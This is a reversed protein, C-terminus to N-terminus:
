SGFEPLVVHDAEFVAFGGRYPIGLVGATFCHGVVDHLFSTHTGDGVAGPAGVGGVRCSASVVVHDGVEVEGDAQQHVVAVLPAEPVRGQRRVHVFEVRGGRAAVTESGVVRVVGHGPEVVGAAPAVLAVGGGFGALVVLVDAVVVLVFVTRRTGLVLEEVALVEPGRVDFVGVDPM